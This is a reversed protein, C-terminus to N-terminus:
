QDKKLSRSLGGPLMIMLYHLLHPRSFPTKPFIRKVSAYRSGPVLQRTMHRFCFTDIGEFIGEVLMEFCMRPFIQM